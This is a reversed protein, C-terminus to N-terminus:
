EQVHGCENAPLWVLDQWELGESECGRLIRSRSLPGKWHMLLEQLILIVLILVCAIRSVWVSLLNNLVIILVILLGRM